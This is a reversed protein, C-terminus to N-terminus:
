KSKSVKRKRLIVLVGAVVVILIVGIIIGLGLPSDLSLAASPLPGLSLLVEHTSHQYSFHLLWSDSVPTATYDIEGGDLYAKVNAIDGIISKAIYVDVYGTTGSDGSVTFSLEQSESNFVLSSVTSNSSVSFVNKDAFQTVAFNVTGTTGLYNGDGEYTAKVLYNGTVSPMWAASYSGDSATNVMTLDQWSKGGNVSYSLLVPTNPIATGNFTLSGKIEVNFGSYSTSSKCLVDLTPKALESASNYLASIEQASLAENYIMVEDLMGDYYTAVGAPYRGRNYAGMSPQYYSGSDFLYLNPVQTIEGSPVGDVYMKLSEGKTWVSVVHHWVNKAINASYVDYWNGDTLKVSFLIVEPSMGADWPLHPGTGLLFEGNGGHHIIDATRILPANIWASVTLSTPSSSFVNPFAVYDNLGDFKLASGSVGSVWEPGSLIGNKDNGSSDAVTLGSDEDLKWYGVLGGAMPQVPVGNSVKFYDFAVVAARARLGVKGSTYSTDEWSITINADKSILSGTFKNGAITVSLTYDTGANITGSSFDHHTPREALPTATDQTGYSPNEPIYKCFFVTDYENSLEFAYYNSNDIYRFVIGARFGVTDTFKFKTEITCDTLSLGDVTSIGNDVIGLSVTYEGNIVQWSGAQQTWGDAVGNDFNDTFDSQAKATQVQPVFFLLSNMLLMVVLLLQIALFASKRIIM